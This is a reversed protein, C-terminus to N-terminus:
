YLTLEPRDLKYKRYAEVWSPSMMEETVKEIGYNFKFHGCYRCLTNMQEKLTRRNVSSLEKLGIDFGLVRDAGAGAGCPYYGYRSLGIGCKKTIWCGVSYDLNQYGKLDIPAVNYTQFLNVNSTKKGNILKVQPPLEELISNVKEGSGNSSVEIQMGPNEDELHSITELVEFFQPHLTPEGGILRIVKWRWRLDLSEKVFKDIQGLDMDEKVPAQRVSRNCNYCALSCRTTLDIEIINMKTKRRHIRKKQPDWLFNRYFIRHPPRTLPNRKIKGLIVSTVRGLM